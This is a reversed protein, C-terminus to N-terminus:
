IVTGGGERNKRNQEMRLVVAKEKKTLKKPNKKDESLNGVKAESQLKKIRKNFRSLVDDMERQLMAVEMSFQKVIENGIITQLVLPERGFVIQRM